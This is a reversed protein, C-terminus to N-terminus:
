PCGPSTGGPGALSAVFGTAVPDVVAAIVIPITGTGHQAAQVAPVTAAVLVDVPLRVLEDALVPLREYEGEASRVEIDINQGEVYGLERLGQRFPVLRDPPVALSRPHLFGIRPVKVPPQAQWPLRGCGAVLGVGAAGVGEVFGRRSLRSGRYVMPPEERPPMM